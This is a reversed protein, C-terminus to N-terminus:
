KKIVPVYAFGSGYRSWNYYEFEQAGNENFEYGHEPMAFDKMLGFLEWIECNDRGLAKAADADHFIRMFLSKPMKYIDYVDPQKETAVEQAFMMGRPTTGGRWYDISIAADWEPAICEQKPVSVLSRYDNLLKGIDPEDTLNQAYAIKGCFTAEPREVVEFLAGRYLITEVITEKQYEEATYLIFPRKPSYSETSTQDSKKATESM